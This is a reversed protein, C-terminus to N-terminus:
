GSVTEAQALPSANSAYGYGYGYGYGHGGDPSLRNAVVGLVPANLQRLQDRLHVAADRTTRGVAAVVVVGDVRGLMPMTDAVVSTPATDIVILEYRQALDALLTAMTLSEILETPNPPLAGAVM